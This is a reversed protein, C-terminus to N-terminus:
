LTTLQICEDDTLATPFLVANYFEREENASGGGQNQGIIFRDYNGFGTTTNTDVQSGDIFLKATTGSYVIVAKHKDNYTIDSDMLVTGSGSYNMAISFTFETSSVGLTNVTIRNTSSGDSLSAFGQVASTYDQKFEAYLTGETQGILSSIGTKSCSDAGRTVSAGYTPIYSTPYSGTEYQAGYAYIYNSGSWGGSQGQAHSIPRIQVNSAGTGTNISLWCRYWGNGMPEIDYGVPTLVSSGWLTATGASLDFYVQAADQNKDTAFLSYVSADGAKAFSSIVIDTNDSTSPFAYYRPFSGTATLKAANYVGEPSLTDSTNYSATITTNILGADFYESQSLLNTRQPELLLSPCTGYNLRPMDELIGAQATTTTTEIYDTAVLGAELQADQFYFNGSSANTTGNGDAGIISVRYGASFNGTISCRYYGNGAFEIKSDIISGSTTGKIGNTVDFWCAISADLIELKVWDLTGGKLYVAFTHVGTFSLSLNRMNGSTGTLDLKWANTGGDRDSQGSTPTSAYTSWNGSTFANSYPLLNERGKEILGESNVRTAALNSGRSFTFDGSGDTPKVSYLKGDKYGSPIMVLSADNIM